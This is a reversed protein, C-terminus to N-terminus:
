DPLDEWLVSVILWREEVRCLQILKRGEGSYPEGKLRGSKRYRSQRSAIRGLVTTAGEIEWEHFNTLTGDSLMVIRPTIFDDVNWTEVATPSMRTVRGEAIFMARLEAAWRVSGTDGNDVRPRARNDFASYFAAILTDISREDESSL